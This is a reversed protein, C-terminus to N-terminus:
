LRYRCADHREKCGLRIPGKLAVFQEYQRGHFNRLPKDVLEFGLEWIELNDTM